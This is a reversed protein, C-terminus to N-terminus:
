QAFVLIFATENDASCPFIEFSGVLLVLRKAPALNTNQPVPEMGHVIPTRFYIDVITFLYTLHFFFGVAVIV